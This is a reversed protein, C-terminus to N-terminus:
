KEAKNLTRSSFAIPCQGEPHEQLLDAGLGYSSADASVTTPKTPDFYALTLATTLLTKISAFAEAQPPGWQWATEMELLQNLPNLVSTLNPLRCGLYNVM